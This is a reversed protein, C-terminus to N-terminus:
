AADQEVNSLALAIQVQLTEWVVQTFHLEMREKFFMLDLGPGFNVRQRSEYRGQELFHRGEKTQYVDEAQDTGKLLLRMAFLATIIEHRKSYCLQWKEWSSNYLERSIVRRGKVEKVKMTSPIRPYCPNILTLVTHAQEALARAKAQEPNNRAMMANAYAVFTRTKAYQICTLEYSTQNTYDEGHYPPNERYAGDDEDNYELSPAMGTVRTLDETLAHLVLKAMERFTRKLGKEKMPIADSLLIGAQQGHLDASKRVVDLRTTEAAICADLLAQWKQDLYTALALTQTFMPSVEQQQSAGMNTEIERELVQGLNQSPNLDLM